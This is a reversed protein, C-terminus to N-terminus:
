DKIIVQMKEGNVLTYFAGDNEYQEITKILKGNIYFWRKNGNEGEDRVVKYRVNRFEQYDIKPIGRDYVLVELKIYRKFTNVITKPAACIPQVIAVSAIAAIAFSSLISKMIKKKNSQRSRM